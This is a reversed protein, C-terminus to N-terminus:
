NADISLTSTGTRMQLHEFIFRFQRLKNIDGISAWVVAISFFLMISWLIYRSMPLPPTEQIELAAPLFEKESSM